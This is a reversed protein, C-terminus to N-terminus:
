YVQGKRSKFVAILHFESIMNFTLAHTKQKNLITIRIHLAEDIGNYAAVEAANFQLLM